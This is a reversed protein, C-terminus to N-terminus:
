KVMNGCSIMDPVSSTIKPGWAGNDWIYIGSGAFYATLEMVRDSDVDVETIITPNASNIRIFKETTNYTYLGYQSGFDVALKNGFKIM